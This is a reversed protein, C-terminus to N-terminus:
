FPDAVLLERQVDPMLQMLGQAGATSVACPRGSSEQTIMARVLKPSVKQRESADKVIQELESEPLPDCPIFDAMSRLSFSTAPSSAKPWPLLFGNPQPESVSIWGSAQKRVAARQTELSSEMRTGATEPSKQTEPPLTEPPLPLSSPAAAKTQPPEAACVVITLWLPLLVRLM